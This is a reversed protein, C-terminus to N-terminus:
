LRDPSPSLNVFSYILLSGIGSGTGTPDRYFLFMAVVFYVFSYILVCTTNFKYM